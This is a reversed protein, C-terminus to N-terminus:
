SGEPQIPITISCRAMGADAEGSDMADWQPWAPHATYVRADGGLNLAIRYRWQGVAQELERKVQRLPKAQTAKVYVAVPVTSADLVASLPQSGPFYASEPARTTRFTFGVEGIGDEPLWWPSGVQPLERIVMPSLSLSARGIKVWLPATM